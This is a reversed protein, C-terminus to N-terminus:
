ILDTSQALTGTAKICLAPECPTSVSPNKNEFLKYDTEERKKKFIEKCGPM